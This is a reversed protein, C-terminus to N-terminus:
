NGNQNGKGTFIFQATAVQAVMVELQPAVGVVQEV